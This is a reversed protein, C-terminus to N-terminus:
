ESPPVAKLPLKGDVPYVQSEVLSIKQGGFGYADQVLSVDVAEHTAGIVYGLISVSM